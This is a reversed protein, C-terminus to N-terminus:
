SRLCSCFINAFEIPQARDLEKLRGHKGIIFFIYGFQELYLFLEESSWGAQRASFEQVEIILMPHHMELLQRAGLLCDYEGGEIDIKILDVRTLKESELIRDLTTVHIYELLEQRNKDGYLSALGFNEDAVDQGCSQYIPMNKIEEKGLGKRHLLVQDLSNMQIHEALQDAISQVPEFSVVRGNVEVLKSTVLTIEGINAGVDIVIMDKLIKEKLLAILDENYYGMWFIRRQMHESLQLRIKLDDDFDSILVEAHAYRFLRRLIIKSLKFNGNFSLLNGLSRLILYFNSINSKSM